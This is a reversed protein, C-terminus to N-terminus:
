DTIQALIRFHPVGGTAVGHSIDRQRSGLGPFVFVGAFLFFFGFPMADHEEALQRFNDALIQFFAGFDVDFAFQLGAFPLVLVALVAVGSFHHHLAVAAVHM